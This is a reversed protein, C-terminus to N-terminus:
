GNTEYKLTVDYLLNGTTIDKASMVKNWIFIHKRISEDYSLGFPFIM